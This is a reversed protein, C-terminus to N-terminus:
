SSNCAAVLFGVCILWWMRLCSGFCSILLSPGAATRVDVLSCITYRPFRVGWVEFTVNSQNVVQWLWVGFWLILIMSCPSVYELKFHVDHALILPPPALFLGRCTSNSCSEITSTHLIVHRGSDASANHKSRELFGSISPAAGCAMDVADSSRKKHFKVWTKEIKETSEYANVFTPVRKHTCNKSRKRGPWCKAM